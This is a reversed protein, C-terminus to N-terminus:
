DIKLYNKLCKITKTDLTIEIVGPVERMMKVNEILYNRSSGLVPFCDEELRFRLEAVERTVKRGFLKDCLTPSNM